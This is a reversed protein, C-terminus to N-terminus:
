WSFALQAPATELTPAAHGQIWRRERQCDELLSVDRDAIAAREAAELAEMAEAMRDQRRFYRFALMALEGGGPQRSARYLAAEDVLGRRGNLFDSLAAHLGTTSPTPRPRNGAVILTSTLGSQVVTEVGAAPDELIM